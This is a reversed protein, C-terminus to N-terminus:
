GDAFWIGTVVAAGCWVRVRAVNIPRLGRVARAIPCYGAVEARWRGRWDGAAARVPIYRSGVVGAMGKM